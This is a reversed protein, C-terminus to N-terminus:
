ECRLTLSPDVRAARAAPLYAALVASAALVGLSTLIAASDWVPVGFLQSRVLMAVGAAVPVGLLLGAGVLRSAQGLILGVIDRPQAGLAVRVGIERFRQTVGHSLVGYLGLAALLLAIAGFVTALYAMTREAAISDDRTQALTSFLTPPVSPDIQQVIGRLTESLGAEPGNVRVYFTVAGLVKTQALPVFLHRRGEVENVASMRFDKVVGVIEFDFDDSRNYGFRQGVADKGKFYHRAFSENVLAVLPAGQGDRQDFNRGAVIPAQIATLFQPTLELWLPNLDENEARTYGPLKITSSSNSNTLLTNDSLGVTAVNPQAAIQATVREFLARKHAEDYGALAPNLTFTAIHETEYGVPRNALNLLSRALLGAGVLLALSLALQSIVLAHRTRRGGGATAGSGERLSPTLAIQTGQLAPVISSVVVGLFALLAAFGLVRADLSFRLLARADADPLTNVLFQGGAVAVALGAILGLSALVAGEVVLERVLRARTGGLSLRVAIEKRRKTARTLLLNAINLCGIFLVLSASALLIRFPAAAQERFGSAGAGGPHLVVSKQTFRTRFRESYRAATMEKVEEALIQKYLVDLRSQAQALTIGPKLRAVPTLFMARRSELEDWTPTVVRKMTLPVYAQIEQGVELGRFNPPAVGVVEMSAANIRVNKGIINPDLGFRRQWYSYSIVVVPHGGITLDDASSILRGKAPQLGLVEFFSGSVLNASIRETSSDIGFFVGTPLYALVGSFVDAKDRFDKFMPYSIPSPFEKNSEFTGSNPGPTDILVLSGPDKVPMSRLLVQDFLSFVATNAGIGLAFTLVILATLGPNGAVRRLALRVDGLIGKM